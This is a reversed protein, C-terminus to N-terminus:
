TKICYMLAINRPRTETGVNNFTNANGITQSLVNRGGGPLGLNEWNGVLHLHAEVADDQSTGLARGPDTGKGNDWGRVFEGRLDPAILIGLAVLNPYAITSQGNCELWGTPPTSRYFAMVAGTPVLNPGAAVVQADVYAKTSAQAPLVPDAALTLTGTMTDGAKNVPTFGLSAQKTALGTDVYQKTTVQLASVPDVSLAIPGVGTDGAKNVPTFGLSAQKTALGTDVYQKPAASLSGAPTASSLTLEGTMAVSGNKNIYPTLDPAITTQVQSLTGKKLVGGQLVLLLDASTLSTAATKDSIVGPVLVANNVHANLNTANVQGGDAYITGAQIDAM